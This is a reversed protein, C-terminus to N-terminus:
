VIDLLLSTLEEQFIKHGSDIYYCSAYEYQKAFQIGGASKIVKDKKGFILTVPTGRKRVQKLFKKPNPKFYYLLQWTGGLRNRNETTGVHHTVFRYSYKPLLKIRYLLEVLGLYWKPNSVLKIYIKRLGLPIYHFFKPTSLADTALLYVRSLEFAEFIGVALHGGYSYGMLEVAKKEPFLDIIKQIINIFDAKNFDKEQIVTLGHYPLDLAVVTYKETLAKEINSFLAADNAFGHLALLLTDGKGFQIYHISSNKYKLFHSSAM